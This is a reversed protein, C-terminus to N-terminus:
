GGLAENLLSMDVISKADPLNKLGGAQLGEYIPGALEDVDIYYMDHATSQPQTYPIEAKNELIQQELDLGLDKGYKTVSLKAALGPDIANQKWGKVTARLFAVLDARRNKLTDRTVFVVNDYSPLGLSAWPTVFYDKDKVMGKQQLSIAQNTAFGDLADGKGQILPDVTYGGPVMTYKLPLGARTLAAKISFDSPPAPAILRLGVLDHATRVPHAALSIVASPSVQYQAGILVYDNGSAIAELVNEIGSQAGVDAAGAALSDAPSPANAGGSIFKVALGESAYLGNSDAIWYGAYDVNEVWSFNL